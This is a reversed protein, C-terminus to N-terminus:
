SCIHLTVASNASLDGIAVVTEHDVDELAGDKMLESVLKELDAQALKAGEVAADYGAVHFGWSSVVHVIYFKSHYRRAISLAQRLAKESLPSFDTAALVRRISVRSIPTDSM